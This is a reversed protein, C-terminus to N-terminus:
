SALHDRVLREARATDEQLFFHGGEVAVAHGGARDAQAEFWAWPLDSRTGALVVPRAVLADLHRWAAPAGPPGASVEFITAEAEPPCALEVQGDSRDTFGWRVYAALAEPAMADLPPRSAYSARLTARDPWVVRRARAITAMSNQSASGDPTPRTGIVAPDFAIAECLLLARIVGPRAQDVLAGVGGGLSEGLAVCRDVGLADLVALVDAAMRAFAYDRTPDPPV